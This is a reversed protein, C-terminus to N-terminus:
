GLFDRVKMNPPTLFSREALYGMTMPGSCKRRSVGQLLMLWVFVKKNGYNIRQLSHDFWVGQTRYLLLCSTFYKRPYRDM